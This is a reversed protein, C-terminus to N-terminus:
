KGLKEEIRLMENIKIVRDGSIGFKCYNAGVGVAFHAILSDETESSRHSVVVAIGNEKALKVTNIADTITGVQNPKIIIASAAKFDIGTKLREASSAFLDDGCVLRPQLMHTLVSFGTFEDDKLPDEFYIIPFSRALENMYTIQQNTSLIKGSYNYVYYQNGDWLHSAACDLGLKLLHENGVKTMIELIEETKLNATWASEINKSYSFTPDEIRLKKGVGTYAITMKDMTERFSDQHVPVFLFEQIDSSGSTKWGGIINCLPRPMQPKLKNEKAIYEFVEEDQQAAFAKLCASSVALMVNGGIERFDPTSDIIHLLQDLDQQNELNESTIHRRMILFKNIAEHPLMYRVEHRSKSSGIPVSARVTSKDTKLELEITKESNTAFIERIELSRIRM